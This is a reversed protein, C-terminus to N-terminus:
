VETPNGRRPPHNQSNQKLISMKPIKSTKLHLGVKGSRAGQGGLNIRSILKLSVKSTIEIKSFTQSEWKQGRKCDQLQPLHPSPSVQPSHGFDLAQRGHSEGEM